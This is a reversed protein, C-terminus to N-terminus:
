SLGMYATPDVTVFEPHSSPIVADQTNHLEFYQCTQRWTSCNPRWPPVSRIGEKMMTMMTDAVKIIEPLSQNLLREQTRTVAFRYFNCKPASKPEKVPAFDQEHGCLQCKYKGKQTITYADFPQIVRCNKCTRKPKHINPKELVNVLLGQIPGIKHSLALLQFDAQMNSQWGKMYLPMPVYSSKTKHEKIWWGKTLLTTDGQWGTPMEVDEEVYFYRDVKALLALDKTIPRIVPEEVSFQKAAPDNTYNSTYQDLLLHAMFLADKTPDFEKIVEESIEYNGTAYFNELGSHVLAGICLPDDRQGLHRRVRKTVYNEYWHWPCIGTFQYYQSHDIIFQTM